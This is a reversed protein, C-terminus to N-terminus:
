PTRPLRPEEGALLWLQTWSAVQDRWLRRGFTHNAEPLDHRTVREEALLAQWGRSGAVADRFERAVFDNGSLILLVRGRFRRLGEAMRDPLPVAGASRPAAGAAPRGTAGVAAALYRGFSAAASRFGFEGRRIKRGLAADFLRRAYYHRILTRASGRETHVWPNLLAIGTVRPDQHAYFLAASAADCLGWVVVETMGPVAELFRDIARRIDADMHEFTRAAGASDGMGRCDFRLVPV